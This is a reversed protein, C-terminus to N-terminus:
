QTREELWHNENTIRDVEEREREQEAIFESHDENM